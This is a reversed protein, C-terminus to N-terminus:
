PLEGATAIAGFQMQRVMKGVGANSGVMLWAEVARLRIPLVPGLRDAIQRRTSQSAQIALTLHVVPDKGFEGGFPLPGFEEGIERTLVAFPAAPEPVLYVVGQEFESVRTLTFDFAKTRKLLGELADIIPASLDRPPLFPFILTLHPPIGAAASPDHEMRLERVLQGAELAPVLVVSELENEL